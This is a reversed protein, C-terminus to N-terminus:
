GINKSSVPVRQPAEPCRVQEPGLGLCFPMPSSTM